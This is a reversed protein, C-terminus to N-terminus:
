YKFYKKVEGAIDSTQTVVTTWGLLDRQWNAYALYRYLVSKLICIIGSTYTYMCIHNEKFLVVDKDTFDRCILSNDLINSWM